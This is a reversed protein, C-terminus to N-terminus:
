WAHYRKITTTGDPMAYEIVIDLDCEERPDNCDDTWRSLEVPQGTRAAEEFKAQREAEIKAQKEAKQREIEAAKEEAAQILEKLRAFTTHWTFDVSYKWPLL